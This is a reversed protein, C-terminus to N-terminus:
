WASRGEGRGFAYGALLVGFVVFLLTFTDSVTITGNFLSM